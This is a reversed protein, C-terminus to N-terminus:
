LEIMNEDTYNKRLPYGVWDDELFLRRLDPHKLFTVGFLDYVEREHFIATKWIDCVTEIQPHAIDSIKAKVVLPHKHTKSLLHYVVTFHEKWDVCTLCFLYDFDLQKESRLQEMLLRLNAADINVQLFQGAEEFTAVPQLASISQKLEENTM